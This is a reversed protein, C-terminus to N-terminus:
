QVDSGGGTEEPVENPTNNIAQQIHYKELTETQKETMTKGQLFTALIGIITTVISIFITIIEIGKGLIAMLITGTLAITLCLGVITIINKQNESNM